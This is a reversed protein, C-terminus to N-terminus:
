YTFQVNRCIDRQPLGTTRAKTKEGGSSRDIYTRSKETTLSTKPFLCYLASGRGHFNLGRDVNITQGAIFATDDSCLLLLTGDLSLKGPGAKRPFRGGRVHIAASAM